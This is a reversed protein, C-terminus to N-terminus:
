VSSRLALNPGNRAGLDQSVEHGTLDNSNGRIPLAVAGATDVAGHGRCVLPARLRSSGASRGALASLGAALGKWPPQVAPPLRSGHASRVSRDEATRSATSSLPAKTHGSTAVVHGVRSCFTMAGCLADVKTKRVGSEVSSAVSLGRPLLSIVFGRPVM